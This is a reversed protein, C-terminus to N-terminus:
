DRELAGGKCGAACPQELLCIERDRLLVRAGYWGDARRVSRNLVGTGLVREGKGEWYSGFYM